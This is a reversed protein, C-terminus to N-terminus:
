KKSPEDSRRYITEFDPKNGWSVSSSSSSGPVPPGANPRPTYDPETQTDTKQVSPKRPAGAPRADIRDIGDKAIATQENKMVVILRDDAADVFTANMPKRAGRKYIRLEAGSNLEKVKTWSTDAASLQVGALIFTALLYTATRSM